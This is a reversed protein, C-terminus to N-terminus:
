KSSQEYHLGRHCNSCVLLCKDIEKKIRQMDKVGGYFSHSVSFDKQTPDTHHFDLAAMCKDYGCLECKGGKYEVCKAKLDRGNQILRKRACEKCQSVYEHKRKGGRSYFESLPLFEFCTKCRKLDGKFHELSLTNHQNFPSCELCYKRKSLSRMKGDIFM